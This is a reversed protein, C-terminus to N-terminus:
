LRASRSMVSCSLSSPSSWIRITRATYVELVDEMAAVFGANAKPPISWYKKLHPKIDNKLARAVTNFDASEVDQTRRGAGRDLPDDLSRARGAAELLGTCQATSPEQWRLPSL